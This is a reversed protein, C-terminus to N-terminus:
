AHAGGRNSQLSRSLAVVAARAAIRGSENGYSHEIYERITGLFADDQTRIIPEPKRWTQNTM